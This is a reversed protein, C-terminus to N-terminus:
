HGAGGAQLAVRPRGVRGLRETGGEHGRESRFGGHGDLLGLAARPSPADPVRDEDLFPSVATSRLRSFPTRPAAGALALSAASARRVANIWSVPKGWDAM